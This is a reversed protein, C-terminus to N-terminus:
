TDCSRASFVFAIEGGLQPPLAGRHIWATLVGRVGVRARVEVRGRGKDGERCSEFQKRSCVTNV